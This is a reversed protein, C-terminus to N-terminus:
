LDNIEFLNGNELKNMMMNQNQSSSNILYM